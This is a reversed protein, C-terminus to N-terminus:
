FKTDCLKFNFQRRQRTLHGSDRYPTIQSHLVPYAYNGLIHLDKPFLNLSNTILQNDVPSNKFVYADHASGPWGFFINIFEYEYDCVGQFLLHLCTFWIYIPVSANKHVEIIKFSRVQLIITAVQKRNIYNNHDLPLM